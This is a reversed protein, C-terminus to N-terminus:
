YKDIQFLEFKTATDKSDTVPSFALLKELETEVRKLFVDFSTNQLEPLKQCFKLPVFIITKTNKIKLWIM